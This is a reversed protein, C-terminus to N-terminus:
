KKYSKREVYQAIKSQPATFYDGNFKMLSINKPIRDVAQIYDGYGYKGAKLKWKPHNQFAVNYERKSTMKSKDFDKIKTKDQKPIDPIDELEIKVLSRGTNYYLTKGFLLLKDDTIFLEDIIHIVKENIMKNDAITDISIYSNKKMLADRRISSSNDKLVIIQNKKYSMCSKILYNKPYNIRDSKYNMLNIRIIGNFMLNGFYKDDPHYIQNSYLYLYKGDIDGMIPSMTEWEINRKEANTVISKFDISEQQKFTEASLRILKLHYPILIEKKYPNYFIDKKDGVGLRSAYIDYPIDNEELVVHKKQKTLDYVSLGEDSNSIITLLNPKKLYVVKIIEGDKNFQQRRYRLVDVEKKSNTDFISIQHTAVLVIYKNNKTLIIQNLHQPRPLIIQNLYRPSTVDKFEFSFLKKVNNTEINFLKISAYNLKTAYIIHKDDFKTPEILATKFHNPKLEASPLIDVVKTQKKEQEKIPVQNQEKKPVQNQEKKPVQNQEKKPVQNQEKKPVQNQEKKPVQKQEKQRREQLQRQQQLLEKKLIALQKELEQITTM